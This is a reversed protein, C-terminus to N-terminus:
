DYLSELERKYEYNLKELLAKVGIIEDVQGITYGAMFSGNQVDGTEVAKKLAGLTYKELEMKDVGNKEDTLYNRTMKNKILRVPLGSIRGVVTIHNEKSKVILNKYEPHIPCEDTALFLTGIQVGVAGLVKSALIQKGSAIGGAAIVPINVKKVVQPVLTMTTMEGIHGGAECGEAIVADAGCQEMRLALTPNPVVPIVLIGKEKLAPIYKAPNGAGTTVIPVKKDIIIQILEDIHRNLLILNVAFPKDTIERLSDIERVLDEPTMNGSGIVGLGGAESVSGAFYGNSINAMGGQIIPYEINLLKSLNLSEGVM